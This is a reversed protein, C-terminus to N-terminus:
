PLCCRRVRLARPGPTSGTRSAPKASQGQSRRVFKNPRDLVEEVAVRVAAGHTRGTRGEPVVRKAVPDNAYPTVPGDASGHLTGASPSRRTCGLHPRRPLAEHRRPDAPSVSTTCPRTRPTSSRGRASARRRGRTAVPLRWTRANGLTSAARSNTASSGFLRAPRYPSCEIQRNSFRSPREM